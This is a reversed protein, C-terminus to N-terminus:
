KSDSHWCNGSINESLFSIFCKIYKISISFSCQPLLVRLLSVCSMSKSILSLQLLLYFFVLLNNLFPFFSLLDKPHISYPKTLLKPPITEIGGMAINLPIRYITLVKNLIRYDDQLYVNKMLLLKFYFPM